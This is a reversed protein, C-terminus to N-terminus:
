VGAHATAVANTGTLATTKARFFAWPASSAFGDSVANNGALTITGLPLFNKGDNSVEIVVTATLAGSGEVSAQFTSGSNEFPGFKDGVKSASTTRLIELPRVNM